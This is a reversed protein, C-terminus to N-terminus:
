WNFGDSKEFDLKYEDSNLIDNPDGFLSKQKSLLLIKNASQILEKNHHNVILIGKGESKLTKLLNIFAKENIIDLSTSAEDFLIFATNQILARGINVIQKQGESLHNFKLNILSTINLKEIVNFTIDDNTKLKSYPYRGFKLIDLVSYNGFVDINSGVYSIITSLEKQTYNLINNNNIKIEGNIAVEGLISNILTSKGSGNRGVLAIIEGTSLSFNLNTFLVKDGFQKSINKGTLKM